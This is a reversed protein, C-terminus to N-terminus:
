GNARDRCTGRASSSPSSARHDSCSRLSSPSSRCGCRCPPSSSLRDTQIPIARAVPPACRVIPTIDVGAVPPIVNRTAKLLPETPIAVISWPLTSLDYKPFWSLVVRMLFAITFLTLTPGLFFKIPAVWSVDGAAAPEVVSVLAVVGALAAATQPESLEPLLPSARLPPQPASRGAALTPPAPRPSGLRLAASEALLLALCLLSKPMSHPKSRPRTSLQLFTRVRCIYTVVGSSRETGIRPEPAWPWHPRRAGPAPQAGRITPSGAGCLSLCVFVCLCARARARSCVDAGVM